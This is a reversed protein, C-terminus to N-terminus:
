YSGPNILEKPLVDTVIVNVAADTGHNVVTM